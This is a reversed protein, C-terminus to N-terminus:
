PRDLNERAHEYRARESGTTRAINADLYERYAADESAKALRNAAEMAGAAKALAAPSVAQRSAVHQAVEVVEATQKEQSKRLAAIDAHMKALARKTSKGM